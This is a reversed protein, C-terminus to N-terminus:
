AAVWNTNDIVTYAKKGTVSDAQRWQGLFESRGNNYCLIANGQLVELVSEQGFIRFALDNIRDLEEISDVNIKFSVEECTEGSDYTYVGKCITFPKGLKRLLEVARFTRRQNDFNSFENLQASFIIFM